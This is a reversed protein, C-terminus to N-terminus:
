FQDLRMSTFRKLYKSRAITKKRCFNFKVMLLQPLPYLFYKLKLKKFMM